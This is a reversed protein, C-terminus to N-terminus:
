RGYLALYPKIDLKRATNDSSMYRITGFIPREPGWARDFRGLCWCVGSVSNPDRGDLAWRDNLELLTELAEEPSASWELVKKGWLMRLYNHIKGDRLLQRQAANWIPDHTEAAELAQRDYRHPRPDAAHKALTARAWAPLSEYRDHHPLTRAVNFGVERWTILEDLFAEAAESAGWWGAKSGTPKPALRGPHWGEAEWVAAIAQHAGVHGFHLYPSLGSTGPVSPENRDEPYRSLRAAVFHALVRRGAAEGGRVGPVVPVAHDIALGEAWGPAGVLLDAAAEPWRALRASLDPRAQAALAKLPDAVPFAEAQLLGPVTKHLHRRFGHATPFPTPSAALPMLGNGDVAEVRVALGRAAAAQVQPVFFGPWDDTVVACADAALAELLGDQEGPRAEVHTRYVVGPRGALAQAQDAMGDLVFRHMRDNMFRHGTRLTELIVLPKGWENALAVARQLAHNWGLRRYAIMWYLVFEGAPRPPAENLLRLRVPSVANM